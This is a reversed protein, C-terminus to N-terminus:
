LGSNHHRWSQNEKKLMGKAIQPGKQNWVFKLIIQKLETFFTSPMKISIANLTYVAKPLMSMKINTKGIWACPIIKWKKTNEEIEKM